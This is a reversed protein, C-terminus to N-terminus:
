EISEHENSEPLPRYQHSRSQWTGGLVEIECSPARPPAPCPSVWGDLEPWDISYRGPALQVSNGENGMPVSVIRTQVGPGQARLRVSLRTAGATPDPHHVQLWLDAPADPRRRIRGFHEQLMVALPHDLRLVSPECLERNRGYPQPRIAGSPPEVDVRPMSAVVLVADGVTVDPSAPVNGVVATDQSALVRVRNGMFGRPPPRFFQRLEVTAVKVDRVASEDNMARQQEVSVVSAVAVLSNEGLARRALDADTEQRSESLAERSICLAPSTQLLVGLWLMEALLM